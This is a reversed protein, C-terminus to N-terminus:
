AGAVEAWLSAVEEKAALVVLDFNEPDEVYGLRYSWKGAINGFWLEYSGSVNYLRYKGDKKILKSQM